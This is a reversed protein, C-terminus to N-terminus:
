HCLNCLCQVAFVVTDERVDFDSYVAFRHCDSAIGLETRNPGVLTQNINIKTMM